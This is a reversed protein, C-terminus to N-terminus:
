SEGAKREALARDVRRAAKERPVGDMEMVCAILLERERAAKIGEAREDFSALVQPRIGGTTTIEGTRYAECVADIVAAAAEGITEGAGTIIRQKYVRARRAQAYVRVIWPVSREGPAPLSYVVDVGVFPDVVCSDAVHRLDNDM